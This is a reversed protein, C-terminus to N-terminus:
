ANIHDELKKAFGLVDEASVERSDVPKSRSNEVLLEKALRITELKARRAETLALHDQSAKLNALRAAELELQNTHRIKELGSQVAIQLEIQTQQEPTLDM